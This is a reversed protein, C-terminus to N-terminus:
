VDPVAFLRFAIAQVPECNTSTPSEPVIRAEGLPIEHVEFVEPVLFFRRETAEVPVLNITTPSLPIMRVDTSTVEITGCIESDFM